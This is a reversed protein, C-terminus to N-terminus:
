PWHQVIGTVATRDKIGNRLVSFLSWKERTDSDATFASDWWPNFYGFEETDPDVGVVVIGHAQGDWVVSVKLPGYTELMWQTTDISLLNAALGCSLGLATAADRYKAQPLGSETDIRAAQLKSKVSAVPYEQVQYLMEYCSIWCSVSHIQPRPRIKFTGQARLRAM